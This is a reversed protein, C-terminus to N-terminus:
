DHHYVSDPCRQQGCRSVGDSAKLSGDITFDKKETKEVTMAAKLDEIAQSGEKYRNWLERVDFIEKRSDGIEAAKEIYDNLGTVDIGNEQLVAGLFPSSALQGELDESYNLVFARSSLEPVAAVIQAEDAYLELNVLNMDAYGVGATMSVRNNEVDNLFTMGVKGTALQNLSPDSAGEMTLELNVEGASGQQNESSQGSGFIEEMPSTQGEATISKFADIVADKPDKTNKMAFAGAAVAVVAAGAAPIM